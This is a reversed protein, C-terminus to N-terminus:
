RNCTNNIFNNHGVMLDDNRIGWEKDNGNLRLGYLQIDAPGPYAPM